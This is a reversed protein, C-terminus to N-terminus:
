VFLYASVFCIFIYKYAPSLIREFKSKLIQRIFKEINEGIIFAFVSTYPSYSVSIPIPSTKRLM